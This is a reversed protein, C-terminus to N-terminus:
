GHRFQNKAVSTWKGDDDDNNNDDDDEDDNNNDDDDEDDIVKDIDFLDFAVNEWNIESNRCSALLM